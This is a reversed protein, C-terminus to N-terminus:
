KMCSTEDPTLKYSIDFIIKQFINSFNDHIKRWSFNGRSHCFNIYKFALTGNITVFCVYSLQKVNLSQTFYEASSINFYKDESLVPNSMEHLNWHLYHAHFALNQKRPFANYLFFFFFVNRRRFIGISHYIKIYSSFSSHCKNCFVFM